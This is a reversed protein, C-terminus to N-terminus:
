RIEWGRLDCAWTGDGRQVWEGKFADLCFQEDMWDSPEPEVPEAPSAVYSDLTVTAIPACTMFAHAAKDRLTEGSIREPCYADAGLHLYPGCGALLLILVALRM